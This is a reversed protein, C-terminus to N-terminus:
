HVEAYSQGVKADIGITVNLGLAENVKKMSNYMVERGKDVAEKLSSKLVEDHDSSKTSPASTGL